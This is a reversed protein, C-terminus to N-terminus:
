PCIHLWDTAWLCHYWSLSLPEAFTTDEITWYEIKVAQTALNSSEERARAPPRSAGALSSHNGYVVTSAEGRPRPPVLM